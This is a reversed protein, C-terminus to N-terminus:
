IDQIAHPCIPAHFGSGCQPVGDRRPLREWRQPLGDPCPLGEWVPASRRPTSAGGVNPLGDRRPLREWTPAFWRPTSAGGCQPLGDRCPLREWMPCVMAALFGSGHKPCVMPAHFGRGCQPLCQYQLFFMLHGPHCSPLDPRPLGEWVPASRRPTSAAGVNHPGRGEPCFTHNTACRPTPARLM